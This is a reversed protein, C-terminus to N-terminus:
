LEYKNPLISIISIWFSSFLFFYSQPINWYFAAICFKLSPKCWCFWLHPIIWFKVFKHTPNLATYTSNKAKIVVYGSCRLMMHNYLKGFIALVSPSNVAYWTMFLWVNKACLLWQRTSDDVMVLLLSEMQWVFESDSSKQNCKKFTRMLICMPGIRKLLDCEAVEMGHQCLVCHPCQM